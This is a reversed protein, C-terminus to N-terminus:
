KLHSPQTLSFYKWENKQTAFPYNACEKFSILKGYECQSNISDWFYGYKGIHKSKDIDDIFLLIEDFIEYVELEISTCLYRKENVFKRILEVQTNM